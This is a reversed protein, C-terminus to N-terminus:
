GTEQALRTASLQRDRAFFGIARRLAHSTRKEFETGFFYSVTAFLAVLIDKSTVFQLPRARKLNM